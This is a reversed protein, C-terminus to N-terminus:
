FNNIVVTMIPVGYELVDGDKLFIKEITGDVPSLIEHEIGLVVAYGLLDGKKVSQKESVLVNGKSDTFKINGVFESRIEIVKSQATEEVSVLDSEYNENSIYSQDLYDKSFKIVVKLKGTKLFLESIGSSKAINVLSEIEEVM